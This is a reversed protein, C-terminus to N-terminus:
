DIILPHCGAENWESRTDSRTQEQIKSTAKSSSMEGSKFPITILRECQPSRKAEEEEASKLVFLLRSSESSTLMMWQETTLAIGTKTPVEGIGPINTFKRIHVYLKDKFSSVTVYVERGLVLRLKDGPPIRGTINKLKQVTETVVPARRHLTSWQDPSLAIGKKTAVPVPKEGSTPPLFYQRVHIYLKGAFASVSLYRDGGLPIASKTKTGARVERFETRRQVSATSEHGTPQEEM